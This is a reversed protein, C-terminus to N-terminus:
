MWFGSQGWPLPEVLRVWLSCSEEGAPPPCRAGIEKRQPLDRNVCNRQCKKRLIVLMEAAYPEDTKEKVDRDCKM